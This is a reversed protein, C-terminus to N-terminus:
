LFLIMGRGQSHRSNKCQWDSLLSINANVAADESIPLKYRACSIYIDNSLIDIKAGRKGLRLLAEEFSSKDRSLVIGQHPWAATNPKSYLFECVSWVRDAWAACSFKATVIDKVKDKFDKHVAASEPTCRWIQAGCQVLPYYFINEVAIGDFSIPDVLMVNTGSPFLARNASIFESGRKIEQMRNTNGAYSLIPKSLYGAIALALIYYKARNCRFLTMTHVVLIMAPLYFVWSYYYTYRGSVVMLAPLFCTTVLLCITYYSSKSRAFFLGIGTIMVLILAEPEILYASLLKYQFSVYAENSLNSNFQFYTYVFELFTGRWIYYVFTILLATAFGLAMCLVKKFFEKKQKHLLYFVPLLLVLLPITYIGSAMLLFARLFISCWSFHRYPSNPLPLLADVTLITFLMILVDIRGMQMIYSLNWGGWFLLCLVITESKGFKIDRRYFLLLIAVFVAFGLVVNLSCVTFHSVGFLLLWGCLLFFHLPHYSYFWVNSRYEGYMICNIATDSTGMEDCWPFSTFNITALSVLCFVLSLILGVYINHYRNDGLSFWITQWFSKAAAKVLKWKKISVEGTTRDHQSVPLEFCRLGSKAAIGSLIVNPAFTDLPIRKFSEAFKTVRMLRYPANVDWVSKGYFIRVCLRSVFSIIKRPLAQKRGDRMGVLFDYDGRKSWLESFKEPEMEDDSDIQFVWDFGDEVAERYATLITNGHGGNPKDKVNIHARGEAVKRMVALSDDKSGDNYPRIEYDMGLRLLADDWKELVTGIIAQENYVPMVVCLKEKIDNM